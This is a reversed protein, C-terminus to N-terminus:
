KAYRRIIFRVWGDVSQRLQDLTGYNKIVGEILAPSVGKESSHEAVSPLKERDVKWVTGGANIIAIAENDFRVDTVVMRPSVGARVTEWQRLMLMVWLDPHVQQRGWETGLTQAMQRPSKGLWPLVAEKWVRDDWQERDIGLMSSLMDKLPGALAYRNFSHGVLFNAVSDKGCGAPGTLGILIQKSM